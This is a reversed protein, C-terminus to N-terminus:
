GKFLRFISISFDDKLAFFLEGGRGAPFILFAEVTFGLACDLDWKNGMTPMPADAPPKSANESKSLSNGTFM